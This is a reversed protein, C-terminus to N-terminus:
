SETVEAKLKTVKNEAAKLYTELQKVLQLGREYKQMADDIDVDDQQLAGLILELEESLEQYNADKKTAM